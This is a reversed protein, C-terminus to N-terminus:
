KFKQSLHSNTKRRGTWKKEEGKMGHTLMYIKKRRKEEITKYTVCEKLIIETIEGSSCLNM